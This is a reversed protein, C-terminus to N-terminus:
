LNVRFAFGGDKINIDYIGDIVDRLMNNECGHKKAQIYQRFCEVEEDSVIVNDVACCERFRTVLAEVQEKSFFPKQQKISGFKIEEMTTTM